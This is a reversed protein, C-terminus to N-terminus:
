KPSQACQSLLANIKEAISRDLEKATLSYLTRQFHQNLSTSSLEPPIISKSMITEGLGQQVLDLILENRNIQLKKQPVVAYEQFFQNTYHAIGSGPERVLWIGTKRGVRVLEDSAIKKRTLLEPQAALPKEVMGVDLKKQALLAAIHDSNDVNVQWDYTPLSSQALQLFKPALLQSVTQSFGIRILRRDPETIHSLRDQTHNWMDQLKLAQHYLLKGAATPQVKRHHGRVFLPRGVEKELQQIQNSVTPQTVFLEQAALSFSRTEYVLILTKLFPHM